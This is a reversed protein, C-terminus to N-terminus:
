GQNGLNQERNGLFSDSHDIESLILLIHTTKPVLFLLQPVALILKLDGVKRRNNAAM